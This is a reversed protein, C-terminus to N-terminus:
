KDMRQAHTVLVVADQDDADWYVRVRVLRVWEELEPTPGPEIEVRWRYDPDDRFDGEIQGLDPFPQDLLARTLTEQALLTARVIRRDTTVVQINRGHLSLLAVLATALISMAVLVELLTFGRPKM